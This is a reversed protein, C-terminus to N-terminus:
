APFGLQRSLSGAPPESVSRAIDGMHTHETKEHTDAQHERGQAMRMSMYRVRSMLVDTPVRTQRPGRRLRHASPPPARERNLVPMPLSICLGSAVTTM